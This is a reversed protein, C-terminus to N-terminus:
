SHFAVIPFFCRGAHTSRWRVHDAFDHERAVEALLPLQELVTEPSISALERMLYVGKIYSTVSIASTLMFQLTSLM